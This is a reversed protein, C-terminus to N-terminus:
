TLSGEPLEAELIRQRNAKRSPKGASSKILWRPPVLFIRSVTVDIQIAARQVALRLARREREDEIETEAVVCVQETGMAENEMGFAVVRGPLIGPVKSVADEVDEPFLNNGAVVILDKKRGAVFWEGELTFGYDGSYYWGNRVARRTDEGNHRYEEFMQQSRIVIEGVHGEPLASGAEDVV